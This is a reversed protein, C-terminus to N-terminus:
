PGKASGFPPYALLIWAARLRDNWHPENLLRLVHPFGTKPASVIARRAIHLWWESREPETKLAKALRKQEKSFQLGIRQLPVNKHSALRALTPLFASRRQKAMNSLAALRVQRVPDGALRLLLKDTTRGLPPLHRAIGLRVSWRRSRAAMRVADPMSGLCGVVLGKAALTQLKRDPSKQTAESFRYCRGKSKISSVVLAEYAAFRLRRDRRQYSYSLLLKYAAPTSYAGVALIAARRLDWPTKPDRALRAVQSYLTAPRAVHGLVELAARRSADDGSLLLKSLVAEARKRLSPRPLTHLLAAADAQLEIDKAKLCLTLTKPAYQAGGPRQILGRLFVKAREPSTHHKTLEHALIRDAVPDARRVLQAVVAAHIDTGVLGGLMARYVEFPMYPDALARVLHKADVAKGGGAALRILEVGFDHAARALNGNRYALRLRGVARDYRGQRLFNRVARRTPFLMRYVRALRAPIYPRSRRITWDMYVHGNDSLLTQPPRPYSHSLLVASVATDDFPKYGSGRIVRASELKGDGSFHIRLRVARGPTNFHDNEVIVQAVKDIVVGVWVRSLRAQVGKIYRTEAATRREPPPTAPAAPLGIVIALVCLATM